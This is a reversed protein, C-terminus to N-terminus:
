IKIISFNHLYQLWLVMDVNEYIILHLLKTLFCELLVIIIPPWFNNHHYVNLVNM